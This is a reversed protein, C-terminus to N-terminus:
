VPSPWLPDACTCQWCCVHADDTEHNELDAVLWNYHQPAKIGGGGKGGMVLSITNQIKYRRKAEYGPGVNIIVQMPVLCIMEIGLVAPMFLCSSPM